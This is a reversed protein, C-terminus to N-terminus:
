GVVRKADEIRLSDDSSIAAFETRSSPVISYIYSDEPLGLSSSGTEKLTHM